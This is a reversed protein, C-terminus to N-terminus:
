KTILRVLVFVGVGAGAYIAWPPLRSLLGPSAASADPGLTLPASPAQVVGFVDNRCQVFYETRTAGDGAAAVKARMCQRFQEVQAASMGSTYREFFSGSKLIPPAAGVSPPGM